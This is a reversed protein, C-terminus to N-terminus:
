DHRIFSNPETVPGPGRWRMTDRATHTGAGSGARVNSLPWRRGASRRVCEGHNWPQSVRGSRDRAEDNDDPQRCDAMPASPDALLRAGDVTPPRPGAIRGLIRWRVAVRLSSHPRVCLCPTRAVRTDRSGARCRFTGAHAIPWPLIRIETHSTSSKEVAARTRRKERVGARAAIPLGPSM